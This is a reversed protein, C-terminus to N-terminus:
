RGPRRRRCPSDPRRSRVAARLTAEHGHHGHEARAEAVVGAVLGVLKWGAYFALLPGFADRAFRPGSGFLMGRFSVPVPAPVGTEPEAEAQGTTPEPM